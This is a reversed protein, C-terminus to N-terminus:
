DLRSPHSRVPEGPTFDHRTCTPAFAFRDSLWPITREGRGRLWAREAPHSTAAHAAAWAFTTCNNTLIDYPRQGRAAAGRFRRVFASAARLDVHEVETARVPGGRGHRRSLHALLRDRSRPTLDGTRRDIWLDVPLAHTRVEGTRTRYRGFQHLVARRRGGPADSFLVLDTHGLEADDVLGGTPGKTDIRYDPYVVVWADGPRPVPSREGAAATPRAASPSVEPVPDRGTRSPVAGRAGHGAVRRGVPGPEGLPSPPARHAFAEARRSAADPYPGTPPVAPPEIRSPRLPGGSPTRSTPAVM